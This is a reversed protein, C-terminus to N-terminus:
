NEFFNFFITSERIFVRKKIHQKLIIVLNKLYFKHIQYLPILAIGHCSTGM